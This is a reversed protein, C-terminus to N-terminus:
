FHFAGDPPSFLEEQQFLANAQNNASDSLSTQQSATKTLSEVSGLVASSLQNDESVSLNNLEEDAGISVGLKLTLSRYQEAARSQGVDPLPLNSLSRETALSAGMGTHISVRTEPRSFASSRSDVSLPFEDWGGDGALWTDLCTDSPYANIGRHERLVGHGELPLCLCSARSESQGETTHNSNRLVESLEPWQERNRGRYPQQEPSRGPFSTRPVEQQLHRGLQPTFTHAFFDGHFQPHTRSHGVTPEARLISASLWTREPVPTLFNQVIRPRKTTRADPM